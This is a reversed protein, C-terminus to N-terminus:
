FCEPAPKHVFVNGLMFNRTDSMHGADLKGYEEEFVMVKADIMDVQSVLFAELSAPRVVAGWEPEGHHSLVIHELEKLLAEPTGLTKGYDHILVAGMMLHGFMNGDMTYAANGLNDTNLEKIKGIDHLICGAVVLHKNATSYVNCLAEASQVMRYTHYILGGLMNHHMSKAASWYLLKEKHDELISFVLTKLSEPMAFVYQLLDNYMYEPNGPSKKVFEGIDVSGTINKMDDVSYDPQGNYTSVNMNCELVAGIEYPFDKKSMDWKKANIDDKGDTLTLILFPSGKKTTREAVEKLLLAINEKGQQLESIKKM